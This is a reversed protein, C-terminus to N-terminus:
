KQGGNHGTVGLRKIWDDLNYPDIESVIGGKLSGLLPALEKAVYIEAGNSNALVGGLLRDVEAKSKALLLDGDARRRVEYLEAESRIIRDRNEGEVKLTAIKADWEAAVQELEAKSKALKSAAANLREEQDQLNKEFIARDIREETYTYRQLLVADVIIGDAALRENMEDRARSMQKERLNPNYFQSTSLKGLTKKLESVVATNIHEIWDDSNGVRQLLDAPGGHTETTRDSFKYWISLDVDVSSGDTTQVELSGKSHAHKETDRTLHLQQLTKPIFHIKSYLPISWHYGPPLAVVGFGKYPGFTIQRLGMEGPYVVSGFMYVIGLFAVILVLCLGFASGLLGALLGKSDPTPSNPKQDNM